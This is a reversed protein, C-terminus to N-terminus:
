FTSGLVAGMTVGIRTHWRIGFKGPEDILDVAGGLPPFRHFYLPFVPRFRHYKTNANAQADPSLKPRM